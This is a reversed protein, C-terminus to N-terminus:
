EDLLEELELMFEHLDHPPHEPAYGDRYNQIHDRIRDDLTDIQKRYRGTWGKYARQSRKIFTIRGKM